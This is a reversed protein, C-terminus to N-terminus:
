SHAECLHHLHSSPNKELSSHLDTFIIDPNETLILKASYQPMGYDSGVGVVM